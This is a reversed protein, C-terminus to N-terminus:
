KMSGYSVGTVSTKTSGNDLYYFTGGIEVYICFVVPTDVNEEPIGVVKIEIFNNAMNDFTIDVVNKDTPKPAIEGGGANACALVGFDFDPVLAKYAAIATKDVEYGQVLGAGNGFDKASIGKSIFLPAIDDSNTVTSCVSCAVTVRSPSFYGNGGFETNTVLNHEPNPLLEVQGCGRGCGVQCSNLQVGETHEGEYFADCLNYGYVIVRNTNVTIDTTYPDMGLYDTGNLKAPDYAVINANCLSIDGSYKTVFARAQEETGTFFIVYKKLDSSDGRGIINGSVVSGEGTAFCGPMYVEIFDSNNRGLANLLNGGKVVSLNPSLVVKSLKGNHGGLITSGISTISTPLVIETLAVTGSFASNPLHTLQSGKEFIVSQLGSCANFTNTGSFTKVTNPIVFSELASCKEFSGHVFESVKTDAPFSFEKLASAPKWSTYKSVLCVTKTVHAPCQIRVISNFSYEKTFAENIRSFDLEFQTSSKVIYRSPYTHYETGDFLVCYVDDDEAMGTLDITNSLEVTGFEDTTAASVGLIFFCSFLTCLTLFLLFKKM